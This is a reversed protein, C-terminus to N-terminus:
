PILGSWAVNTLTDGNTDIAAVHFFMQTGANCSGIPCDVVKMTEKTYELGHCMGCDYSVRYHDADPIFNWEFTGNDVAPEARKFYLNATVLVPISFVVGSINFNISFTYGVEQKGGGVVLIEASDHAGVIFDTTQVGNVWLDLGLTPALYVFGLVSKETPNNLNCRYEDEMGQEVAVYRKPREFYLGGGVDDVLMGLSYLDINFSGGSDPVIIPWFSRRHGPSRMYSIANGESRVMLNTIPTVGVFGYRHMWVEAGVPNSTIDIGTQTGESTYYTLSNRNSSLILPMLGQKYWYKLWEDYKAITDSYAKTIINKTDTEGAVISAVISKQAETFCETLGKQFTDGTLQALLPRMYGISAKANGSIVAVYCFDKGSSCTTTVIIKDDLMLDSAIISNWNDDEITNSLGHGFAFLFEIPHTLASQVESKIAESNKLDIIGVKDSVNNILSEATDNCMVTTQTDVIPRFICASLIEKGDIYLKTEGPESAFSVLPMSKVQHTLSIFTELTPPAHANLM